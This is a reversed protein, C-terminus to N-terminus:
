EPLNGRVDETSPFSPRIPAMEKRMVKKPQIELPISSCEVQARIFPQIEDQLYYKLEAVEDCRSKSSESCETTEWFCGM